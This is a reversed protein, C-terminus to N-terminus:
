FLNTQFVKPSIGVFRKFANSFHAMDTFDFQYAISTLNAERTIHNKAAFVKHMLVYNMPSMGTQSKFAKAFGFKNINAISALDHLAIKTTLNHDIFGKVETMWSDSLPADQHKESTIYPTLTQIFDELIEEVPKKNELHSKLKMLSASVQLDNLRRDTFFSESNQTYFKMLDQSLYITVFGAGANKNVVPQSHVEYPHTITISGAESYHSSNNIELREIGSTILSICYTEHYHAPFDTKQQDLSLYSLNDLSM